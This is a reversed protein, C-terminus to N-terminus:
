SVKTGVRFNAYFIAVSLVDGGAQELRIIKCFLSTEINLLIM